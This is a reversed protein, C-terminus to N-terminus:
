RQQAQKNQAQQKPNRKTKGPGRGNADKEGEDSEDMAGPSDILYDSEKPKRSKIKRSQKDAWANGGAQQLVM